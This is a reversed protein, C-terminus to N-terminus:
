KLHEDVMEDLVAIRRGDFTIKFNGWYVPCSPTLLQQPHIAKAVEDEIRTLIPSRIRTICSEDIAELRLLGSDFPM